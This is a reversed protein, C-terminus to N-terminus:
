FGGIFLPAISEDKKQYVQIDRWYQAIIISITKPLGRRCRVFLSSEKWSTQKLICHAAFTHFLNM